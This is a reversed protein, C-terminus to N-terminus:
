LNEKALRRNITNQKKNNKKQETINKPSSRTTVSIREDTTDVKKLEFPFVKREITDLKYGLGNHDIITYVENSYRGTSKKQFDSHNILLRM